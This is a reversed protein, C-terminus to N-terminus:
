VFNYINENEFEKGSLRDKIFSINSRKKFFYFIIFSLNSGIVLRLRARGPVEVM